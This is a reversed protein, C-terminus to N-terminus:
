SNGLGEAGIVVQGLLAPDEYFGPLLIPDNQDRLLYEERCRHQHAIESLVHKASMSALSQARKRMAQRQSSARAFDLEIAINISKTSFVMALVSLTQSSMMDEVSANTARLPLSVGEDLCCTPMALFERACKKRFEETHRVDILRALSFPLQQYPAILRYFLGGLALMMCHLCRNLVTEDAVGCKYGSGPM